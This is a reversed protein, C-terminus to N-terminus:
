LFSLFFISLNIFIYTPSILVKEEEECEEENRLNPMQLRASFSAYEIGGRAKRLDKIAWSLIHPNIEPITMWDLQDNNATKYEDFDPGYSSNIRDDFQVLQPVPLEDGECDGSMVDAVEEDKSTVEHIEYGSFSFKELPNSM